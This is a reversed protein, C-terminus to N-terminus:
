ELPQIGAAILAKRGRHIRSRLTMQHVGLIESIEPGTYGDIMLRFINAQDATVNAVINELVEDRSRDLAVTTSPEAGYDPAVRDLMEADDTLDLPRRSKHRYHDIQVHKALTYLWAVITGRDEYSDLYKFARVFTEQALDEADEGAGHRRLFSVIEPYFAAYAEDFVDQREITTDASDTSYERDQVYQETM